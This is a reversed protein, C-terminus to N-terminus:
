QFLQNTESMNVSEHVDIQDPHILMMLLLFSIPRTSTKLISIGREELIYIIVAHKVVM